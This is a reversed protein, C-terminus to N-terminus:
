GIVPVRRVLFRVVYASLIMSFGQPICFMNLIYWMNEPLAGFLSDLDGAGNAPLVYQILVQLFGHVIFFLAFFAFFKAMISRAMFGASANLASLFIGFIGGRM